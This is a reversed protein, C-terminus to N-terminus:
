APQALFMGMVDLGIKRGRRVVQPEADVFDKELRRLFAYPNAHFIAVNAREVIYTHIWGSRVTAGLLLGELKALFLSIVDEYCSFAASSYGVFLWGPRRTGRRLKMSGRERRYFDLFARYAALGEDFPCIVIKLPVRLNEPGFSFITLIPQGNPSPRFRVRRRRLRTTIRDFLVHNLIKM